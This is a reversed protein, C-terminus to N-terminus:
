EGLINNIKKVTSLMAAEESKLLAQAEKEAVVRENLAEVANRSKELALYTAGIVKDLDNRAKRFVNLARNKRKVIKNLASM